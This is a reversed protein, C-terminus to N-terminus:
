SREGVSIRRPCEEHAVMAGPEIGGIGFPEEARELPEVALRFEGSRSDPKSRHLAHDLAVASGHPGFAGHVFSRREVESKGARGGATRCRPSGPFPGVLIDAVTCLLYLGKSQATNWNSTRFRGSGRRALFSFPPEVGAPAGM